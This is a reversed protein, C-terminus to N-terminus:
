QAVRWNKPKVRPDDAVIQGAKSMAQIHYGVLKRDLGTARMIDPSTVGRRRSKICALIRERAECRTANYSALNGAIQARRSAAAEAEEASRRADNAVMRQLGAVQFAFSDVAIM